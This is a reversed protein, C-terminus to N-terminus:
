NAFLNLHRGILVRSIPPTENDSTSYAHTLTQSHNGKYKAVNFFQCFECLNQIVDLRCANNKTGSHRSIPM